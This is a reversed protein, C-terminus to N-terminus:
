TISRNVTRATRASDARAATAALAARCHHVMAEQAAPGSGIGALDTAAAALAGPTAFVFSM